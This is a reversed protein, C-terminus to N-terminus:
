PTTEAVPGDQAFRNRQEWEPQYLIEKVAIRHEEDGVIAGEAAGILAAGAPTLVSLDSRYERQDAPYVLTHTFSERRRLDVVKVSSYMSVVSRPLRRAPVIVAAAITAIVQTIAAAEDRDRPVYSAIFQLLRRSEELSIIRATM